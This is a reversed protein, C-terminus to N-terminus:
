LTQCKWQKATELKLKHMGFVVGQHFYPCNVFDIFHDVKEVDLCICHHSEKTISVGPRNIRAHARVREIQRQSVKAMHSM